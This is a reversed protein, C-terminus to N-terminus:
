PAPKNPVAYVIGLGILGALVIGLVESPALGDDVVPIAFSTAAIIGSLISKAYQKM